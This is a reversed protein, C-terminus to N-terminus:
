RRRSQNELRTEEVLRPVDADCLGKSAARQEGATVLRQWKRDDLYRQVADSVVDLVTRQEARAMEEVDAQLPAPLMLSPTERIAM